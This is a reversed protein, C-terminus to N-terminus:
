KKLRIMKTKGIMNKTSYQSNIRNIELDVEFDNQYRQTQRKLVQKIKDTRSFNIIRMSKLENTEADVLFMNLRGGITKLWLDRLNKDTLKLLNVSVDFYWGGFDILFFPIDSETFVGYSLPDKSWTKIEQPTPSAINLIINIFDSNIDSRVNETFPIPNPIPFTENIKYEIMEDCHDLRVVIDFDSTKM